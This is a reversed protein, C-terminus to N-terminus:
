WWARRGRAGDDEVFRHLQGLREARFVAAGEHVAHEIADGVHESADVGVTRRLASLSRAEHIQAEDRGVQAADFGRPRLHDRAADPFVFPREGTEGAQDVPAESSSQAPEGALLEQDAREALHQKEGTSRPEREVLHDDDTEARARVEAIGGELGRELPQEGGGAPELHPAHHGLKGTAAIVGHRRLAGGLQHHFAHARRRRRVGPPQHFRRFRLLAEGLTVSSCRLCLRGHVVRHVQFQHLAGTAARSAAVTIRTRSAVFSAPSWGSPSPSSSTKATSRLLFVRNMPPLM